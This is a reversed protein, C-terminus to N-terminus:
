SKGQTLAPQGKLAAIEQDLKSLRKVLRNRPQGKHLSKIAQSLSYALQEM